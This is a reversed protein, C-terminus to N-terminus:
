SSSGTPRGSQAHPEAPRMSRVVRFVPFLCTIAGLLFGITTAWAAGLLGWRPVLIAASAAIGLLTTVDIALYKVFKQAGVLGRGLCRQLTTAGAAVFLALLLEQDVYEPGLVLRVFAGGVTIAAGVAVAVVLLSFMTQLVLLRVFERQRGDRHLRAMRPMVISGLSSTIMAISQSLYSLASYVGLQASGLFHQVLYRPTNVAMSSVGHDLGMPSAKRALAVLESWRAPLLAQMSDNDETRIVRARRRDLLLQPVSWGVLLGLCAVSLQESIYYGGGFLVPGTVSRVIMSHAVYNHREWQQFFGYYTQSVSEVAKAAALAALALLASHDIVAAGVAVTIVVAVLNLIHRLTLYDELRWRKASDTAQVLRLNMGATMFVPAAIALMLAFTGVLEPTALRVLLVILFWQALSYLSNGLLIWVFSRKLSDPGVRSM